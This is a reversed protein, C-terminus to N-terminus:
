DQQQQQEQLLLLRERRLQQRARGRELIRRRLQENRPRALYTTTYSTVYEEMEIEILIDGEKYEFQLEPLPLRNYSEIIKVAEFPLGM